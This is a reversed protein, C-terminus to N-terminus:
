LSHLIGTKSQFPEAELSSVRIQAALRALMHCDMKSNIICFVYRM